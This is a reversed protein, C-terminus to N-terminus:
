IVVSDNVSSCNLKNAFILSFNRTREAGFASYPRKQVKATVTSRSGNIIKMKLEKIASMRRKPPIWLSDGNENRSIQIKFLIPLGCKCGFSLSCMKKWYCLFWQISYFVYLWYYCQKVNKNTNLNTLEKTLEGLDVVNNEIMRFRGCNLM